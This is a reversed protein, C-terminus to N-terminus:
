KMVSLYMWWNCPKMLKDYEEETAAVLVWVGTGNAVLKPFVNVQAPTFKYSHPNKVEILRLGFKSHTALLDPLGMQFVNGHTRVVFWGELTLMKVIADLIKEEPGSRRNRKLPM